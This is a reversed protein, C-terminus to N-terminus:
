LYRVFVFLYLFLYLHYVRLTVYSYAYRSLAHAAPSSPNMSYTRFSCASCTYERRASIATCELPQTSAPQSAYRASRESFNRRWHPRSRSELTVGNSIPRSKRTLNSTRVRVCEGGMAQAEVRSGRRQQQQQQEVVLM